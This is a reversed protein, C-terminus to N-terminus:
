RLQNTIKGIMAVYKQLGSEKSWFPMVYTENYKLSEVLAHHMESDSFGM